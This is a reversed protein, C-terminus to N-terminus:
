QVGSSFGQFIIIGGIILIAGLATLGWTLFRDGKKGLFELDLIVRRVGLMGHIVAFVLLGLEIVMVLPSHFAALSSKFTITEQSAYHILWVHAGLFFSLCLGTLYIGLWGWLGIREFPAQKQSADCSRFPAIDTHKHPRIV